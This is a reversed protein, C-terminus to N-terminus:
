DLDFWDRGLLDELDRKHGARMNNRAAQAAEHLKAAQEKAARERAEREEKAKNM